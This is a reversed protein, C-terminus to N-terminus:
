NNVAIAQATVNSTATAGSNLGILGGGVITGVAGIMDGTYGNGGVAAVNAGGRGNSVAIATMGPTDMTAGIKIGKAPIGGLDIDAVQIGKTTSCAGLATVTGLALAIGLVRTINVSAEVNSLFHYPRVM